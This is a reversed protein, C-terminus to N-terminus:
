GCFRRLLDAATRGAVSWNLRRQYEVRASLALARYRDGSAFVAAIWDAYEEPPTDREFTQGNVGDRVASPVGGVRTAISPVGYASADAFVLGFCESRSPVLLFHSMRLLEDVHARGEATAKSLFGHVTVFPPVPSPPVCGVIHLETPVGRRNLAEAVRWAIEGGKRQWYVGIFLLRCADLAKGRVVAKVDEASPAADLNAGFPVVKVKAPDVDYYAVASNAAWESAYIAVACRTLARQELRHGWVITERCLRCYTPYFDQLGAFTADVWFALPRETRVDVLPITGPSFLASVHRDKLRSEIQRAYRGAVYPDHGQLYNQTLVCKYFREKWHFLRPVPDSLPGIPEVELGGAELAKRMYWGTGSWAHVDEPDYETVYAIKM